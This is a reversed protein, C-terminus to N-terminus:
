RRRGAGSRAKKGKDALMDHLQKSTLAVGFQKQFFQCTFNIRKNEPYDTNLSHFLTIAGGKRENEPLDYSTGPAPKNVVRGKKQM